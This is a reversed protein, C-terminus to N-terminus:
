RVRAAPLHDQGPGGSIFPHWLDEEAVGAIRFQGDDVFTYDIGSARLVSALSPEWVKEAIWCGRPRTEFHVRLWTTMKELQGLKDSMPIMPLIPDYYGGGLVEVQGRRVMEGLLTLFEPHFEELWEMLIGSYHLTVPFAPYRYLIALLPKFAEQYSQEAAAQTFGLPLHNHTGIVLSTKKRM